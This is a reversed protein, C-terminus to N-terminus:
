RLSECVGAECEVGCVENKNIDEPSPIMLIDTDSQDSGDLFKEVGQNLTLVCYEVSTTALSLCNEADWIQFNM